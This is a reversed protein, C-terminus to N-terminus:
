SSAAPRYDPRCQGHTADPKLIIHDRELAMTDARADGHGALLGVMMSKRTPDFHQIPVFAM